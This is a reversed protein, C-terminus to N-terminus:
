KTVVTEDDGKSRNKSMKEIVGNSLVTKGKQNHAILHGADKDGDFLTEPEFM